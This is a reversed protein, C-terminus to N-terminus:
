GPFILYPFQFINSYKHQVMLHHHDIPLWQPSCNWHCFGKSHPLLSPPCPQSSQLYLMCGAIFVAFQSDEIAYSYQSLCYKVPQLLPTSYHVMISWLPCIPGYHVTDELIKIIQFYQNTPFISFNCSELKLGRSLSWKFCKPLIM